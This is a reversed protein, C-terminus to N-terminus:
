PANLMARANERIATRQDAPTDPLALDRWHSLESLRDADVHFGLRNLPEGALEAMAASAIDGVRLSYHQDGIQHQNTYIPREDSLMAAMPALDDKTGWQSLLRLSWVAEMVETQDLLALRRRDPLVGGATQGNRAVSDGLVRRAIDPGAGLGFRTALQLRRFLGPETGAAAVWDEILTRGHGGLDPDTMLDAIPGRALLTEAASRLEKSIPAKLRSLSVLLLWGDLTTLPEGSGFRRRQVETVAVALSGSRGDVDEWSRVVDPYLRRLDLFVGRAAPSDVTAERFAPWGELDVDEGVRFRDIMRSERNGRAIRLIGDLREILERDTSKKRVRDLEEFREDAVEFLFARAAERRDFSPSSLDSVVRRLDPPDRAIAGTPLSLLAVVCLPGFWRRERVPRAFIM